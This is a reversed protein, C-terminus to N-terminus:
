ALAAGKRRNCDACLLQINEPSGAGGLAVPIVHDYQLEFASGCEVCRGGDREFVAVRVERAIPRRGAPDADCAALAAHARELRRRSRRERERVLALVDRAELGEDDWYCRGEFWWYTRRGDAVLPMPGVATAARRARQRRPGWSRGVPTRGRLLRYRRGLLGITREIGADKLERLV